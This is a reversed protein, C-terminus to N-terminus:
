ELCRGCVLAHLSAVILTVVPTTDLAYLGLGGLRLQGQCDGLVVKGLHADDPLEVEAEYQRNSLRYFLLCWGGSWVLAPHGVILEEDDVLVGRVLLVVKLAQLGVRHHLRLAQHPGLLQLQRRELLLDHDLVLRRELGVAEDD